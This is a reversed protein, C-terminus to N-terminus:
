NIELQAHLANLEARLADVRRDLEKNERLLDDITEVETNYEELREGLAIAMEHGSNRAQEMLLVVPLARYYTRDHTM